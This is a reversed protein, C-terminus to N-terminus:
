EDDGYSWTVGSRCNINKFILSSPLEPIEELLTAEYFHLKELATLMVMTGPLSRLSSADRIVFEKLTSSNQLLWQEPLNEMGSSKDVRLNSVFRLSRFPEILLLCLHDIYLSNIKLSVLNNGANVTHAQKMSSLEILKDCGYIQMHRLSTFTNESSPIFTINVSNRIYLRDLKSLRSASGLLPVDLEGCKGMELFKLKLPLLINEHEITVLKPSGKIALHKLSVFKGFAGTPLQVLNECDQISLNELCRLDINEQQMFGNLSTLNSCRYMKVDRLSTTLASSTPGSSHSSQFYEPLDSVAVRSITLKNLSLPLNPFKTLNPCYKINLYKLSPFAYAPPTISTINASGLILETLNTLGYSAELLPVELEGCKDITLKQLKVPVLNSQFDVLALQPSNRITLYKLSSLSGFGETPLQLLNRCNQITLEEIAQLDLNQQQLFGNLSILKACGIIKVVKLSSKVRTLIPATIRSGYHMDPLSNLGVHNVEFKVLSVPIIPLKELIPCDEIKLEKLYPFGYCNHPGAWSKWNPMNRCYLRELSPFVCNNTSDDSYHVEKVGEMKDLYLTKLHPIKWLFPLAEWRLCSCLKLFSLDMHHLNRMWIPSKHGGYGDITLEKLNPHPQLNDIVQEPKNPNRGYYTWFLSLSILSEKKSLNANMAEVPNGVNEIKQISLKRLNNLMELEDIHSGSGRGVWFTLEQLSTLKHVGHITQLVRYPLDMYRLSVLNTMGTTEVGEYDSNLYGDSMQLVQLHYLNYISNPLLYRFLQGVICENVKIFRLHMLRGIEEPLECRAGNIVLVRLTEKLSGNPLVFPDRSNHDVSFTIVLTRLNRLNFMMKIKSEHISVHRTTSPIVDFKGNFEVRCCEGKSVNQALDHMLDHMVYYYSGYMSRREFFSKRFLHNFYEEGIDEPREEGNLEQRIFGSAMWMKILEDKKFCYDRPFICCFRFCEQLDAPLHYYSLKLVEAIDTAQELNILSDHNLIRKWYHIDICSNLLSGIVKAALPSGRLKKVINNGINQLYKHNDHNFGYFAYKNLLELLKPEELGEFMLNEGEMNLVRALMDSVSKMRTTLLIKSGQQVFKLSAILKEWDCMKDDNWVDDLIFLIKKSIIAEKLKIQLRNLSENDHGIVGLEQLIKRTIDQVSFSTSVCVWILKDFHNEISIEQFILQALTTKGLGGAGVICFTSLHDHSAPKKLWDIIIAKETERGFVKNETLISTTERNSTFVPQVDLATAFEFFHGVDAAVLDLAEVAGRLRKLTDRSITSGRFCVHCNIEIKRKLWNVISYFFGSVQDKNKVLDELERYKLEDLVDEAALFAQKFQELWSNVGSNPHKFKLEEAVSMVTTIKPLAANLRSLQSETGAPLMHKGLYSYATDVLKRIIASGTWKAVTLAIEM